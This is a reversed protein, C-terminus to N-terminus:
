ILANYLIEVPHFAKRGTGEKIQQRCSTGSAAITIDNSVRRIAPFLVMEGVKMSLEYHEQEFGFAGAMGCCGSPLESVSYNEPFSLITKIPKTSGIAKIYCHGHLLILSNVNTFMQNNVHNKEIEDALFEEILKTNSSINKADELLNSSVLEPYEDRFTLISSPEVGVLPIDQSIKNRLTRVNYEAINKAKKVLGKSLSTRGSENCDPITVKYGLRTLLLIAKIGIEADIYNTFEDIFLYLEKGSKSGTNNLRQLNKKSWKKVTLSSLL